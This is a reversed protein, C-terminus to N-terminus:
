LDDAGKVHWRVDSVIAQMFLDNIKGSEIEHNSLTIIKQLTLEVADAYINTAISMNKYDISFSRPLKVRISDYDIFSLLSKIELLTAKTLYLHAVSNIQSIGSMATSRFEFLTKPSLDADVIFFQQKVGGWNGLNIAIDNIYLCSFALKALGIEGGINKLFTERIFRKEDTIPIKKVLFERNAKKVFQSAPQFQYEFKTGYLKEAPINKDGHFVSGGKEYFFKGEPADIGISKLFAFNLHGKIMDPSVNLGGPQELSKFVYRENNYTCVKGASVGASKSICDSLILSVDEFLNEDFVLSTSTTIASSKAIRPLMVILLMILLAKLTIPYKYKYALPITNTAYTKQKEAQINSFAIEKLIKYVDASHAQYTKDLKM